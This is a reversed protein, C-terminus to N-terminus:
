LVRAWLICRSFFGLFGGPVEVPFIITRKKSKIKLFLKFIENANTRDLNGTPEDALILDPENILARAIAVRQQEGGSLDSPFHNYRNGLGVKILLKKRITQQHMMLLSLKMSVKKWFM